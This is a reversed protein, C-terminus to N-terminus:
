TLVLFLLFALVPAHFHARLPISGTHGHIIRAFGLRLRLCLICNACGSHLKKCLDQKWREAFNVQREPHSNDM